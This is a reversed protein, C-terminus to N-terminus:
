RPFTALLRTGRGPASDVALTGGVAVVRERLGTLGSGAGPAAGGRGDDVVEVHLDGGREAVTVAASGARAHRQVNTLAEAVVFYAAREVTSPWPGADVAASVAGPWRDCLERVAAALGDEALARPTTGLVVERLARVADDLQQGARDIAGATPSGDLAAPLHQRALGVLVSAALLPPQVGDHLDRQLRRRETLAPAPALPRRELAVRAAAAAMGTLVPPLTADHVIVTGTGDGGRVPTAVVPPCPQLVPCWGAPAAADVPGDLVRLAPDGVAAALAHELRPAPQAPDFGIAISVLRRRVVWFQALVGALVGALIVITGVLLAMLAAEAASPPAQALGLAALVAIALAWTVGCTIPLAVARRRAPSARWWRRALVAAVVLAVALVQATGLRSWAAADPGEALHAATATLVAGVYTAALLARAPRSGVRGYPISLMAHAGFAWFLLGLGAGVAAVGPVPWRALDNLFAATGYLMALLGARPVPGGAWALAGAVVFGAAVLMTPLNAAWLEPAHARVGAEAVAAFALCAGAAALVVPPRGRAAAGVGTRRRV